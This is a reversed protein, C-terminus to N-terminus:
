PQEFYLHYHNRCGPNFAAQCHPCCSNSDLYEHISLETKCVGCLVAPTQWENEPWVEAPHGALATHCDICAYYAGCCRMKMAIVDKETHYHRCRTHPDLDLGHVEPIAATQTSM